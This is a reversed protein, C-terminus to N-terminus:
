DSETILIEEVSHLFAEITEEMRHLNKHQIGYFNIKVSVLRDKDPSIEKQISCSNKIEM